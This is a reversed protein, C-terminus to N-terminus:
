FDSVFKKYADTAASNVGLSNNFHDNPHCRSEGVVARKGDESILKVTVYGGKPLMKDQLKRRRIEYKPMEVPVTIVVNGLSYDQKVLRFINTITSFGKKRLDEITIAVQNNTQNM